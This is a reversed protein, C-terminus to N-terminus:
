QTHADDGEANDGNDGANHRTLEPVGIHDGHGDGHEIQSTHALRNQASHAGRESRKEREQPVNGQGCNRKKMLCGRVRRTLPTQDESIGENGLFSAQRQACTFACFVKLCVLAGPHM